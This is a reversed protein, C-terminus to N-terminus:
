IKFLHADLNIKIRKSIFDNNSVYQMDSFAEIRRDVTISVLKMPQFSKFMGFKVRSERRFLDSRKRTLSLYKGNKHAQCHATTWM